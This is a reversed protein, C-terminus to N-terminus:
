KVGIYNSCVGLTYTKFSVQKFGVKSFISAMENGQPVAKVSKNLYDYASRDKSIIQGIAPIVRESYLNYLQKIPFQQPTSLELVMLVGGPKLVRYMEAFGKELNEFNRVGFAVTIADFSQDPFQLNLCDQCTMVIKHDLQKAEIKQRGIALMGESLDIGVVQQPKLIKAALIALDGTGTAVDLLKQPRYPLLSEIAKRRWIRDIGFTM